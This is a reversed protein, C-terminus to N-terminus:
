AADKTVPALMWALALGWGLVASAGYGLLPVPYHGILSALLLGFWLGLLAFAPLRQAPDIRAQWLLAAPVILAGILALPGTWATWQWSDTLVHEVMKVPQLPDPTVICLMLAAVTAVLALGDQRGRRLLISMLLACTVALALGFDPQLGMLAACGILSLGSYRNDARVHAALLVPVLLMGMHLRVPGLSLWRHVGDLGADLLLTALLALPAVVLLAPAMRPLFRRVPPLLLAMALVAAGAQVALWGSPAGAGALLALGIVLTLGFGIAVIM